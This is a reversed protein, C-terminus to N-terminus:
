VDKCLGLDLLLDGALVDIAASRVDEIGFALFLPDDIHGHYRLGHKKWSMSTVYFMESHMKILDEEDSRWKTADADEAMLGRGHIWIPKTSIAHVAFPATRQFLMVYPEYVPHFNYVRKHQFIQMIFTNEDTPTCLPDSRKCLTIALSNTAQHLSEEHAEVASATVKPMYKGMCKEDTGALPALDPGVSGDPAMQAFVRKPVTDHHAYVQGQADWFFFWNKEIPGWPPPRQIETGEKLFEINPADLAFAEPVLTRFDQAWLGFCAYHSQSGFIAFPADPGYLIRMDHPGISLNYHAIDDKCNDSQTPQVPLISPATVCALTGDKQFAASCAIEEFLPKFDKARDTEVKSAVIIWKDDERPHPIINPNMGPFDIGFDVKFYKKDATTLSFVERYLKPDLHIAGNTGSEPKPSAPSPLPEQTPLSPLTPADNDRNDADHIAPLSEDQTPKHDNNMSSPANENHSKFGRHWDVTQELKSHGDVYVFVIYGLILLPGVIVILRSLGRILM